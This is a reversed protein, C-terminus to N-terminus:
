PRRFGTAVTGVIADPRLSVLEKAFASFKEVDFAGWRIRDASQQRKLSVMVM